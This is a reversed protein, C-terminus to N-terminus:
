VLHIAMPYGCNDMKSLWRRIWVYGNNIVLHIDMHIDVHSDMHHDMRIVISIRESIRGSECSPYGAPNCSQWASGVDATSEDPRGGHDSRFPATALTHKYGEWWRLSLAGARTKSARGPPESWPRDLGLWAAGDCPPQPGAARRRRGQAPLCKDGCLTFASPDCLEHQTWLKKEGSTMFEWRLNAPPPDRWYFELNRAHNAKQAKLYLQLPQREFERQCKM